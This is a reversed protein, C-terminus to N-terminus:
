HEFSLPRRVFGSVASTNCHTQRQVVFGIKKGRRARIVCTERGPGTLLSSSPAAEERCAVGVRRAHGVSM